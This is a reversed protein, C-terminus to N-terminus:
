KQVTGGLSLWGTKGQLAYVFLFLGAGGAALYAARSQAAPLIVAISLLCGLSLYKGFLWAWQKWRSSLPDNQLVEIKCRSFRWSVFALPFLMVLYGAYPGPNFFCGTIKFTGHNGGYVGYLQLNGFVAQVLGTLLLAGVVLRKQRYGLMRVSVYLIGLAVPVALRFAFLQEHVVLVQVAQWLLLFVAYLDFVTFRIVGRRGVAVKAGLLILMLGAVAVFVLGRGSDPILSIGITHVYIIFPLCVVLAGTLVALLWSVAENAIRNM